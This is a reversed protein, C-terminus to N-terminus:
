DQLWGQQLILNAYESAKTNIVLQLGYITIVCGHRRLVQGEQSHFPQSPSALGNEREEM